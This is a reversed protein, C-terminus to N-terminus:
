STSMLSGDKKTERTYEVVLYREEPVVIEPLETYVKSDDTVAYLTVEAKQEENVYKKRSHQRTM